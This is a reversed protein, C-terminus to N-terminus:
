AMKPSAGHSGSPARSSLSSFPSSQISPLGDHLTFESRSFCPGTRAITSACLYPTYMYQSYKFLRQYDSASLKSTRGATQRYSPVDNKQKGSLSLSLRGSYRQLVWIWIRGMPGPLKSYTGGITQRINETPSIRNLGIRGNITIKCHTRFSSVVAAKAEAACACACCFDFFFSITAKM